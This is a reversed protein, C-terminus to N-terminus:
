EILSWTLNSTYLRHLIHLINLKHNMLSLCRKHTVIFETEYIKVRRDIEIIM